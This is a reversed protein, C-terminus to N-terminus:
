VMLNRRHQRQQRGRCNTEIDLALREEQEKAKLREMRTAELQAVYREELPGRAVLLLKRVLGPHLAAVIYSLWAGWSFGILVVPPSANSELTARLEDVQGALSTATQLPELIGRNRALEQAVPAMEGAAGPGGHVVAVPFPASGYLRHNEM